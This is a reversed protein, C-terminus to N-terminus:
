FNYSIGLGSETIGINFTHSLENSQTQNKNYVKISKSLYTYGNANTMLGVFSIITGVLGIRWSLPICPGECSAGKEYFYYQGVAGAIVGCGLLAIKKGRKIKSRFKNYYPKAILDNKLIDGIEYSTYIRNQFEYRSGNKTIQQATCTHISIFLIFTSLIIKFIM